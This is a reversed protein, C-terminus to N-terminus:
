AAKGLIVERGKPTLGHLIHNVMNSPGWIRPREDGVVGVDGVLGRRELSSLTGALVRVDLIPWDAAVDGMTKDGSALSIMVARQNESLIAYTKAQCKGGCQLCYRIGTVRGEVHRAKHGCTQCDIDEYLTTM